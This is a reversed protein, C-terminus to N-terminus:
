AGQIKGSKVMRHYTAIVQNDSMHEVKKAWNTGYPYATKIWEKMYQIDM